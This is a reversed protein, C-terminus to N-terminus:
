NTAMQEKLTKWFPELNGNDIVRPPVDIFGTSPLISEDGRHLGTLLRISEYGYQFPDQVVTGVVAGDKIAQLTIDAEDFGIVKVKGTKDARDLAELIAPPNYVFLGVMAGIDPHRTLTDEVNAKAKARDFQDTLTGLVEYQGDPSSLIVGPDDRRTSDPERGLIRDICGQRRLQANDQDLRGIFLMVTGGSPLADRVLQGCMLGAKYNDMGVYTLRDSKPADSDHTILKTAAAAKNLIGIQNDADIPSIAIGDTGRTILDEISRTQDTLGDPMYVTVDVDADKAAAEAGAAAINWFSAVGNTVYAFRPKDSRASESVSDSCGLTPLLFLVVLPAIKLSAHYWPHKM